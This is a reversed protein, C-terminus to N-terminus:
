EGSQNNNGNPMQPPTENRDFNGNPMERHNGGNMQMENNNKSSNNSDNALTYFYISATSIIAGLLLGTVFIILKDKM